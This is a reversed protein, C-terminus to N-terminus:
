SPTISGAGGPKTTTIQPKPTTKATTPPQATGLTLFNLLLFIFGLKM